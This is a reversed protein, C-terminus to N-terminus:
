IMIKRITCIERLFGTDVRRFGATLCGLLFGRDPFARSTLCFNHRTSTLGLTAQQIDKASSRLFLFMVEATGRQINVKFSGTWKAEGKKTSYSSHLGPRVPGSM